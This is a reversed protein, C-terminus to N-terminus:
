ARSFGAGYAVGGLIAGVLNSAELWLDASTEGPPAFSQSDSMATSKSRGACPIVSHFPTSCIEVKMCISESSCLSILSCGSPHARVAHQVLIQGGWKRGSRQGALPCMLPYYSQGTSLHAIDTSHPPVQSVRPLNLRMAPLETPILLGHAWSHYHVTREPLIPSTGHLM